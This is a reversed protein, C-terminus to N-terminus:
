DESQPLRYAPPLFYLQDLNAAQAHCDSCFTVQKDGVGKTEGFLSGDPMIMSYRWDGSAQNFGRAMKEMLFLPGPFVTGASTVTFSDKALRAGEPLQEAQEFFAYDAALDNGYNNIFRQGHQSSRYPASNYRTWRKYNRADPRGSLIYGQIMKPLLRQYLLEADLATLNAPNDVQLHGELLTDEQALLAPPAIFLLLTLIIASLLFLLV